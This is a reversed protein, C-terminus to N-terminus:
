GPLASSLVMQGLLDVVPGLPSVPGLAEPAPWASIFRPTQAGDTGFFADRAASVPAPVSRNEPDIPAPAAASPQSEPTLASEASDLLDANPIALAARTSTLVPAAGGVSPSGDPHSFVVSVKNASSDAVAIDASGDRNFDAVTLAAPGGGVLYNVAPQFTGDGNGLLVSLTNRADNAVVLDPIGDGNFDGVAVAVAGVDVPYDRAAQYTGNGNALFVSVTQDNFNAAAFDTLGNGAFDGSAVDQASGGEVLATSLFHGSASGFFLVVGNSEAVAIDNFGDNNFDGIKLGQPQAQSGLLLEVSPRFTSDGNGSLISVGSTFGFLPDDFQDTVAVDPIGDGNLDGVAIHSLLDFGSRVINTIPAQFTGDGNGLLVMFIGSDNPPQSSDAVVIDLKGNGTLDGVAVSRPKFGAEYNVAPKFTGDGNGLLVSVTSSNINATVLDTIGSGTFDGQAISFPGADTAADSATQFSGDGHGLYVTVGAESATVVDLVHTGMLDATTIFTTLPPADFTVPSGFSGDGNGPLETVASGFGGTLLDLKGDNHLDALAASLPMNDLSATTGPRFTGDGNGLLVNASGKGFDEDNATAIDAIGDGNLDGVSLGRVASGGSLGTPYLQSQAFTGGGQNLLVSVGGPSVDSGQGGTVIDLQGTHRLDAVAVADPEAGVDYDIGTQFSGDGNGLLVSVSDDHQNATVIDMHGNGLLDGVAVATPHRGVLLTRPAQFTGDGNNLLVSVTHGDSTFGANTVVIDLRGDGTLDGVAVAFPNPGAPVTVAPQFTGDGNGLFVAGAGLNAAVLDPVGDGNVDGVAVTQAGALHATPYSIPAALSPLARDELAELNL